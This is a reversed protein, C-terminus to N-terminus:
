IGKTWDDCYAYTRGTYCSKRRSCQCKGWKKITEEGQVFLVVFVRRDEDRIQTVFDRHIDERIPFAGCDHKICFTLCALSSRRNKWVGREGEEASHPEFFAAVMFEIALPEFEPQLVSLKHGYGQLVRTGLEDFPNRKRSTAGPMPCFVGDPIARVQVKSRTEAVRKSDGGFVPTRVLSVEPTLGRVALTDNASLRRMIAGGIDPHREASIVPKSALLHVDSRLRVHYLVLIPAEADDLRVVSADGEHFFVVRGEEAVVSQQIILILRDDVLQPWQMYRERELAEHEGVSFSGPFDVPRPEVEDDSGKGSVRRPRKEQNKLLEM